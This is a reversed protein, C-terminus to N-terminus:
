RGASSEVGEEEEEEEEETGALSRGGGEEEFGRGAALGPAGEEEERGEADEELCGPLGETGEDRLEEEGAMM